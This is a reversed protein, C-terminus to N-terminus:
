RDTQFLDLPIPGPIPRTQTHSLHSHPKPVSVPVTLGLPRDSRVPSSVLLSSLTPSEPKVTVPPEQRDLTSFPSVRALSEPFSSRCDEAGHEMPAPTHVRSRSRSPPSGGRGLPVMAFHLRLLVHNRVRVGVQSATWAFLHPSVGSVLPNRNERRLFPLCQQFFFIVDLFSSLSPPPLCVHLLRSMRKTSLGFRRLALSM